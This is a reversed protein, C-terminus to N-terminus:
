DVANTEKHSIVSELRRIKINRFSVAKGRDELCISGTRFNGFGECGSYIESNAIARRIAKSNALFDATKEGNLYFRFHLGDKVIRDKNWTGPKASAVKPAAVLHYCSGAYSKKKGHIEPSDNDAIQFRFGSKWAPSSGEAATLIIGSEGGAEIKWELELEFNEFSDKTRFDGVGPVLSICNDHFIWRGGGDSVNDIEWKQAFDKDSLSEWGQFIELASLGEAKVPTASDSASAIGSFTIGVATITSLARKMLEFSLLCM